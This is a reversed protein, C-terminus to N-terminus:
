CILPEAGKSILMIIAGAEENIYAPEPVILM